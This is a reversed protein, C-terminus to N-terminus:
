LLNVSRIKVNKISCHTLLDLKASVGFAPKIDSALANMFDDRTVKLNEAANAVLTVAEAVRNTFLTLKM